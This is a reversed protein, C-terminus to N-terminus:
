PHFFVKNSAVNITDGVRSTRGWADVIKIVKCRITRSGDLVFPPKDIIEVHIIGNPNDTPGEVVTATM